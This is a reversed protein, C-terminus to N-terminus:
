QDTVEEVEWQENVWLGIVAVNPFRAKLWKCASRIDQLHAQHSVPNGACDAHGVVALGQSQHKELSIQVRRLISAILVHDDGKALIGDPGPETINDVHDVGFRAKLYTIVPLQVRGDMCNIVTCFAM